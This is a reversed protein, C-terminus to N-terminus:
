MCGFQQRDSCRSVGLQLAIKCSRLPRLRGTRTSQRDEAEAACADGCVSTGSGFHRRRRDSQFQLRYDPRRRLECGSKGVYDIELDTCLGWTAGYLGNGALFSIDPLNRGSNSTAFTSQWTPVPYGASCSGASQQVCASFGGGGAVINANAGYQTATWPVNASITSNDGQFTSDNWPREPIYNLASRHNALSNTIDVYETFTFPFNSYLTDFDTGGVAINYPTSALANVALGLSAELYVNPNDCGASGSDGTSVTLSIGQAAAQQWLNYIYQNGSSGQEAECGGFSINLIDAQNDDVARAIALFLGSSLYTDAATYLIVNANPLSAM